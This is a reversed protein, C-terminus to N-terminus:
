EEIQYIFQFKSKNVLESIRKNVNENCIGGHYCIVTEIDYDMLKKVSQDNLKEDFNLDKNSKFLMGDRVCFMDGAILIKYRNIYLCMHGPTHGPTFIVTIGGCYPLKQEHVLVEDINVKSREFGAKLKKYIIKMNDPIYELNSELKALKVPTKQGNIYEADEAHSLVKIKNPVEKLIENVSGIHDIDQHTLIITNLKNFSLGEKEVAEHIQNYVGPFGTDILILSYNDIILTPNIVTPTGMYSLIELM